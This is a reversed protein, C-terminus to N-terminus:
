GSEDSELGTLQMVGESEILVKIRDEAKGLLNACHKALLSARSYVKLSEELNVEEGELFDTAEKLAAYAEEFTLKRIDDPIEPVKKNACM